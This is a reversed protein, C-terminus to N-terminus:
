SRTAARRQEAAINRKINQLGRLTEEYRAIERAEGLKPFSKLFGVYGRLETVQEMYERPRLSAQHFMARIRRRFIRPPAADHNVVVGTVRQQGGRSSIRTKQEHLELNYLKGLLSQSRRIARRVQARDEGSITIDDAYRSYQLLGESCIREMRRDFEYLISNSLVPSTPAGQPLHNENTCLSALLGSEAPNFGNRRLLNDIMERTIKGFFNKIDANGVFTRGVHLQANTVISRGFVFSHVSNHINLDNFIFDALFWQVVRLFVRPSEIPREGGGKKPLTFHRYHREPNHAIQSILKTSVGMCLGLTVYDIMFERASIGSANSVQGVDRFSLLPPFIDRPSPTLGTKEAFQWQIRPWYVQGTRGLKNAATRKLGSSTDSAPSVGALGEDTDGPSTIIRRRHVDRLLYMRLKDRLKWIPLPLYHNGDLTLSYLPEPGPLVQLVRKYQLQERLFHEFDDVPPLKGGSGFVTSLFAHVEKPATPQLVGVALLSMHPNIIRKM